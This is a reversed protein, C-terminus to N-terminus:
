NETNKKLRSFIKLALFSILWIIFTELTIVTWFALERSAFRCMAAIIAPYAVIALFSDDTKSTLNNFFSFSIIIYLISFIGSLLLKEKNNM